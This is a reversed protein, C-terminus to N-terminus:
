RPAVSLPPTAVRLGPLAIETLTVRRLVLWLGGIFLISFYGDVAYHYGTYVSLFMIVALFALGPAILWRSREGLYLAVITAIGVHVSPFASIGSGIAMGKNAYANWLYSQVLGIRSDAVGSLALAEHLGKFREGGELADYFIPGASSGILAFVNGVVLWCVLYLVLFRATRERDRDSVAIILVLAIAPIAWVNLYAPLIQDVPLGETWRHALEWPDNGGHMWRDFAALSPDAYFPVLMPITSKLFSFGTQLLASGFIAYGIVNLNSAFNRWGMVLPVILFLPLLWMAARAMISGFAITAYLAELVLDFSLERALGTITFSAVLYIAVIRFFLKM